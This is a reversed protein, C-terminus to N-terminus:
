LAQGAPYAADLPHLPIKELKTTTRTQNLRELISAYNAEAADAQQKLSGFDVAKAKLDLEEKQRAAYEAELSAINEKSENVATQLDTIAQDYEKQLMAQVVQIQGKIEIM